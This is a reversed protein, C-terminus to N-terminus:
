PCEQNGPMMCSGDSVQHVQAPQFFTVSSAATRIKQNEQWQLRVQNAFADLKDKILPVHVRTLEDDNKIKDQNNKLARSAFSRLVERLEIDNKIKNKNAKAFALRDKEALYGLVNYLQCGDMIKDQNEEAFGLRDKVALYFLVHNLQFGDKIKDQTKKAFELRDKEALNLLV